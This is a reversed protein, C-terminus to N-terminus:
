TAPDTPQRHDDTLEMALQHHGYELRDALRGATDACSPDAPPSAGPTPTVPMRWIEQVPCFGQRAYFARARENGTTVYLQVRDFGNDAAWQRGAAALQAALDGGRHEPAVYLAVLEAWRRHAFLPSDLHSEMLLLGAPTAGSCALLWLAGPADWTRDFHDRLVGPWGAALAFSPDLTANYRHLAAFLAEIADIDAPQARAIRLSSTPAPAPSHRDPLM